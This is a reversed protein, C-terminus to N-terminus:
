KGIPESYNAVVNYRFNAGSQKLSDSMVPTQQQRVFWPSFISILRFREIRRTTAWSQSFIPSKDRIRFSGALYGRTGAPDPRRRLFIAATDGKLGSSTNGKSHRRRSGMPTGRHSLGLTRSLDLPYKQSRAAWDIAMLHQHVSFTKSAHMILAIV